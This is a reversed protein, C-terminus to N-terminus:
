SREPRRAVARLLEHKWPSPRLSATGLLVAQKGYSALGRLPTKYVAWPVTVIEVPTLGARELLARVATPTYQSLHHIPDLYRWNIRDRRARVSAYNPVEFLAFGGPRLAAHLRALITAPEPLHELVHWGCIVEFSRQDFEVDEIRTAEVEVGSRSRALAAMEPSPDVGRADFGAARAAALFHGAASGIEFLRGQEAFRRVFQVRVRAELQRLERAAVYPHGDDYADFYETGYLDGVQDQRHPQFALGCAECEYMVLPSFDPALVAPAGCAWCAIADPLDPFTPALKSIRPRV